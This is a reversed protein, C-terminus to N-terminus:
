QLLDVRYERRVVTFHFRHGPNTKIAERFIKGLGHLFAHVQRTRPLRHEEDAFAASAARYERANRIVRRLIQRDDIKVRFVCLSKRCLYCFQERCFLARCDNHMIKRYQFGILNLQDFFKVPYACTFERKIDCTVQLQATRPEVESLPKNTSDVPGAPPNLPGALALSFGPVLLVLPAILRISM